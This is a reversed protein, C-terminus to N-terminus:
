KPLPFPLLTLPPRFTILPYRKHHEETATQLYYLYDLIEDMGDGFRERGTPILPGIRAIEQGRPPAHFEFRDLMSGMDVSAGVTIRHRYLNQMDKKHAIFLVGLFYLTALIEVGFHVRSLLVSAVWFKYPSLLFESEVTINLAFCVVVSTLKIALIRTFVPSKQKRDKNLIQHWGVIGAANVTVFVIHAWVVVVNAIFCLDTCEKYASTHFGIYRALIPLQLFIIALICILLYLLLGRRHPM